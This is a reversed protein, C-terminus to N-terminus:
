TTHFASVDTISPADHSFTAFSMRMCGLVTAPHIARARSCPTKERPGSLRITESGTRPRCSKVPTEFSLTSACSYMISVNTFSGVSRCCSM